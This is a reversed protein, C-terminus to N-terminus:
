ESLGAVTSIARTGAHNARALQTAEPSAAIALLIAAEVRMNAAIREVAAVTKSDFM